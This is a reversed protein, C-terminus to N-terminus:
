YFDKWDEPEPFMQIYTTSDKLDSFYTSWKDMYDEGLGMRWFIDFQDVSPFAIWPPFVLDIDSTIALLEARLEMLLKGLMNQGSGTPGDAWFDDNATHEVLVATGTGLLERKLTPHQYFKAKLGCRMVDLRADTWDSRFSAHKRRGENAAQMPSGTKRIAEQKQADTFKSAQFFHEVTPYVQSGVVIPSHAFNSFNGYADGTRYFEIREM